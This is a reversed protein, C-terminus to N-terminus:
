HHAPDSIWDFLTKVDQTFYPGYEVTDGDHVHFSQLGNAHARVVENWNTIWPGGSSGHEMNDNTLGITGSTSSSAVTGLAEDMTNGNFPPNPTAPYGVADWVRGATPANWLLGLWSVRSGPTGPMWAMGYDHAREAHQQWQTWCSLRGCTFHYAPDTAARKGYGPYFVMNTSWQGSNFVCHGATLLVNPAVMAASGSFGSGGQTFFIKGVTCYPFALPNAVAHGLLAEGSAKEPNGSLEKGASSEKAEGNPKGHPTFGPDGGPAPPALATESRTSSIPLPYPKAAARREETWYELAAADERLQETPSGVIKNGNAEAM